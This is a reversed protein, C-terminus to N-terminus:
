EGVVGPIYGGPRQVADIVFRFTDVIRNSMYIFLM